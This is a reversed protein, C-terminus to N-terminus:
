RKGILGSALATGLVILVACGLMWTTVIEDLFVVGILNAFVPILYTVTMARAPGTKAMLRFYLVYALATCFFGAFGLALWARLPAAHDPWFYLGPLLLGLSAGWLSGTSTVMAPVGKLFRQTYSGAIGYCLTALLCAAMALGMGEPNFSLDGSVHSALLAVGSFGLGLGLARSWSLRDGLWVRAVLAGFLPTTANLISSLGTSLHLLAYSYCAFPIGANLLGSFLTHQWNNVLVPWERRWLLVPTLMCAALTVRLWATAFPGFAYAGERMFLFSSGWLMALLVFEPLWQRWPLASNM